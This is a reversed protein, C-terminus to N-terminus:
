HTFVDIYDAFELCDGRVYSLSHNFKNHVCHNLGLIECRYCYEYICKYVEEKHQSILKWAFKDKNKSNAISTAAIKFLSPPQYEIKAKKSIWNNNNM